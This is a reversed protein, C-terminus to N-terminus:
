FPEADSVSGAAKIAAVEGAVVELAQALAAHLQLSVYDLSKAVEPKRFQQLWDRVHDLDRFVTAGVAVPEADPASRGSLNGTSDSNSRVGLWYSVLCGCVVACALMGPVFTILRELFARSFEEAFAARFAALGCALLGALALSVGAVL